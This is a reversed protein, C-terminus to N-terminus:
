GFPTLDIHALASTSHIKRGITIDEILETSVIHGSPVLTLGLMTPMVDDHGKREHIPLAARPTM